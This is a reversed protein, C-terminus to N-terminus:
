GQTPPPPRASGFDPATLRILDVIRRSEPDVLALSRGFRVTRLAPDKLDTEVVVRFEASVLPVEPPVIMGPGMRAELPSATFCIHHQAFGVECTASGLSFGRDFADFDAASFARVAVPQAASAEADTPRTAVFAGLTFLAAGAIAMEIKLSKMGPSPDAETEFPNLEKFM